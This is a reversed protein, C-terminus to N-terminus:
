EPWGKSPAARQVWLAEDQLYNKTAKRGGERAMYEVLLHIFTRILDVRDGNDSAMALIDEIAKNMPPEASLDQGLRREMLKTLDAHSGGRKRRRVRHTGDEPDDDAPVPNTLGSRLADLMDVTTSYAGLVKPFEREGAQSVTWGDNEAKTLILPLGDVIVGIKMRNYIEEGTM